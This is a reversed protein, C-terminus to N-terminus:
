AKSRYFADQGMCNEITRWRMKAACIMTRGVIESDDGTFDECDCWYIYGNKFFMTSDLIECTYKEDAPLLNLAKLGIFEMEIMSNESFQRQIIVKLTRRDNIPKMSLEDNVYAGSIYCLEKICSDHFNYMEDMFQAADDNNCIEHWM